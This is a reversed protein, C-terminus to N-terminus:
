KKRFLKRTVEGARIEVEETAFGGTSFHITVRHKGAALQVHFLPTAKGLDKGDIWVRGWPSSNIKLVGKGPDFRDQGGAEARLVIRATRGREVQVRSTKSEGHSFRVTVEHEGAPLLKRLPTTGAPHGDVTVESWPHTNVTLWGQDGAPGGEEGDLTLCTSEDPWIEVEAELVRGSEARVEVLHKGAPLAYGLLPTNRGVDHGDIWVRGWPVSNLSLRGTQDGEGAESSALEPSCPKPSARPSAPLPEFALKFAVQGLADLLAKRDCAEGASAARVPTRQHLDHIEAVVKCSDVIKLIRASLFFEGGLERTLERRCTSDCRKAKRAKLAEKVSQRPLVRMGRESLLVSFYDTLNGLAVGSLRAGRDAVDFVLILPGSDARSWTPWLMSVLLYAVICGPWRLAKM